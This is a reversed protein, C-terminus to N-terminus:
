ASTTLVYPGYKDTGVSLFIVMGDVDFIISDFRKLADHAMTVKKLLYCNGFHMIRQDPNVQCTEYVFIDSFRPM